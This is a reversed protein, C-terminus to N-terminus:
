TRFLLFNISSLLNPLLSNILMFLIYDFRYRSFTFGLFCRYELLRQALIVLQVFVLIFNCFVISVCM